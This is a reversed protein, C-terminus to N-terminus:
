LAAHILRRSVMLLRDALRFSNFLRRIADPVQRPTDLRANGTTLLRFIDFGLRL